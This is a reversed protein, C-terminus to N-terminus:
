IQEGEQALLLDLKMQGYTSLIGHFVATVIFLFALGIRAYDFWAAVLPYSQISASLLWSMLEFLLYDTILAGGYVVLIFLYISIYNLARYVRGNAEGYFKSKPDNAKAKTSDDPQTM